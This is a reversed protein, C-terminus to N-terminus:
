DGENSLEVIVEVDTPVSLLEAKFYAPIIVVGTKLQEVFLKQCHALKEQSLIAETKIVLAQKM